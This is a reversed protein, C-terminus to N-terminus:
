KKDALLKVAAKLAEIEKNQQILYLTLEEIKEQQIKAMEGLAIGDSQIECASPVNPLHGKETIFKEVEALPKLDYNENFVYDAWTGGSSLYVRVEDALIGGTVFLRYNSVSVGGANTPFTGVAGIGVKGNLKVQDNTFDGWILPTSTSSNDIMLKNSLGLNSGVNNGILVNGSGTFPGSGYNSIGAKYGVLVNDSGNIFQGATYGMMVNNNGTMGQGAGVGLAANYGATIGTNTTLTSSGLGVNYSGLNSQGSFTGVYSNFTTTVGVLGAGHGVLTNNTGTTINKGAQDGFFSNRLNITTTSSANGAQYGFYAGGSAVSSTPTGSGVTTINATTVITQANAAFALLGLFGLFFLQTTKM